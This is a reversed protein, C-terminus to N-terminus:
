ASSPLPNHAGRWPPKVGTFYIRYGNYLLMAPGWSRDPRSRFFRVAVPIRDGSRGTRLEIATGVSGEQSLM